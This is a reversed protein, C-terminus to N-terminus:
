TQNRKRDASRRFRSEVFQDHRDDPVSPTAGNREIQRRSRASRCPSFIEFREKSGSVIQGVRRVDRQGFHRSRLDVTSFRHRSANSIIQHSHHGSRIQRLSARQFPDVFRLSNGCRTSVILLIAVDLRNVKAKPNRCSKTSFTSQRRREVKWFSYINIM